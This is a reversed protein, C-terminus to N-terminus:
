ARLFEALVPALAEDAVGHWEGTLSRHTGRPLAEMVLRTWHNLNDSSGQSDIVLTPRGVRGILGLSTDATIRCDYVLTPATAELIPMMPEMGALMEEPVGISRQFHEVAERNRGAEVLAAMEATFARSAGPDTSLPPEFLALRPIDLGAAAAQLALLAGSSMGYLCARGGAESILAALDEVERQIAYPPTDSSEGRGRRDYTYVTFDAALRAALPRMPGFERYGSAADVLILAPGDGSREYVITTGDASRVDGAVIPTTTM